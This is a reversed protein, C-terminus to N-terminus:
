LMIVGEHVAYWAKGYKKRESVGKPVRIRDLSKDNQQMVKLKETNIPSEEGKIQSVKLPKVDVKARTKRGRTIVAWIDQCRTPSWNIDPDDSPRAGDVNGVVVDYIPNKRCMADVEKTLHPTDIYVRVIPVRIIDGNILMCTQIQETYQEPKVLKQRVIVGSCGTDRLVQVKHDNILGQVVPMSKYEVPLGPHKKRLGMVVPIAKGCALKIEGDTVCGCKDTTSMCCGATENADTEPSAQGAHVSGAAGLVSHVGGAQQGLPRQIARCDRAFHGKVGCRFCGKSGRPDCKNESKINNSAEQPKLKDKNQYIQTDSQGVRKCNEADHGQSKCEACVWQRCEWAGHGSKGCVHYSKGRDRTRREPVYLTRSKIFLGRSNANVALRRKHSKVCILLWIKKM